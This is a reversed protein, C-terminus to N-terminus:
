LVTSTSKVQEKIKRYKSLGIRWSHFFVCFAVSFTLTSPFTNKKDNIINVEHQYLESICLGSQIIKGEEGAM